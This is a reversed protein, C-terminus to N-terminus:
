DTTKIKILARNGSVVGPTDEIALVLPAYENTLTANNRATITIQGSRENALIVIESEFLYSEASLETEEEIIEIYFTRDSSSVDSVFYPLPRIKEPNSESVSIELDPTTFGIVAKHDPDIDNYSTSCSTVFLTALFIAFIIHIKKM